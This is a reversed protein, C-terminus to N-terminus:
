KVSSATIQEVALRLQEKDIHEGIFVAVLQVTQQPTIKVIELERYAYQFLYLDKSDTFQVIGKARYVEKPLRSILKEFKVQDVAEQFFHTYAMVHNHTHHHHGGHPEHSHGDAKKPGTDAGKGDLEFLKEMNVQCRITEVATTQPNLIHLRDKVERIHELTLLDTKNLLLLDACRIQEEMLRLTKGREGQSLELFHPSSVVTVVLRLEIGVILSANTIGELLELPNAVGTSEIIMVDPKDKHYIELLSTSLDERISCCICGSLLEAMPVDDDVLTGDLNVDGIENMIVAPRAGRRKLYDLMGTLLTTKGSGLFGSLVYVPITEM